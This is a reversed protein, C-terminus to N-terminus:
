KIERVYSVKHATIVFGLAEYTAITEATDGWSGLHIPRDGQQRLWRAATLALPAHVGLARWEPVVGPQDIFHPADGDVSAQARCHGVANGKADFVLFIGAQDVEALTESLRAEGVLGPTNEWHGWLDSFTRNCLEVYMPLNGVEAYSRVISGAPWVPPPYATGQPAVLAWSDGRFRFGQSFLFRLADKNAAPVDIALYRSSLQQAQEVLKEILLRGIGRQRWVPHVRVDGYCRDPTQRFLVGYGALSGPVESVPVVWRYLNPVSLGSRLQEVTLVGDGGEASEVTNHLEVLPVLDEEQNFLRVSFAM